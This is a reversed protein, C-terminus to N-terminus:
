SNIQVFLIVAECNCMLGLSFTIAFSGHGGYRGSCAAPSVSCYYTGWRLLSATATVSWVSGNCAYRDRVAVLFDLKTM